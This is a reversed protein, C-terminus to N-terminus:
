AFLLGQLIAQKGCIQIEWIQGNDTKFITKTGKTLEYWAISFMKCIVKEITLIIKKM